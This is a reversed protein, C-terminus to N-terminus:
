KTNKKKTRFNRTVKKMLRYDMKVRVDNPLCTKTDFLFQEHYDKHTENIELEILNPFKIISLDHNEKISKRFRQNNQRKRNIVTLKKIFPFSQSICLFFEHEFPREDYLSVKRVCKFLGGSFSNTINDYHILKYPYSYIHCQGNKVKPFYDVCSIVQNDIINIFTKQIDKNSPLDIENHLRISSRINFTFKRLRPMHNIINKNFDNGDIFKKKSSVILSLDLEELNSMRHLLPVILEHYDSTELNSYLSFSRLNPLKKKDNM